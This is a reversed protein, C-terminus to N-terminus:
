KMGAGVRGSSHVAVGSLSQFDNPSASFFVNQGGLAQSVVDECFFHAGAQAHGGAGWGAMVDVQKVGIAFVQQNAQLAL